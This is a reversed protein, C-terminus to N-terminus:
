SFWTALAASLQPLSAADVNLTATFEPPAVIYAQSISEALCVCVTSHQYEDYRLAALWIYLALMEADAASGPLDDVSPAPNVMDPNDFVAM